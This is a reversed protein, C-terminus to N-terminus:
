AALIWLSAVAVAGATVRSLALTSGSSVAIQNFLRALLITGFFVGGVAALTVLVVPLMQGVGAVGDPVIGPLLLMYILLTSPNGLCLAM